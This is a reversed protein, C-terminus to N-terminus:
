KWIKFNTRQELWEKLFYRYILYFASIIILIIVIIFFLLLTILKTSFINNAKQFNVIGAGWAKGEGKPTCSEELSDEFANPVTSKDWFYLTEVLDALGKNNALVVASGGSILPASMSTGSIVRENEKWPGRISEGPATIDPKMEFSLPVPGRSSWPTITDDEVNLITQQPNSAAVAIAPESNAPSLITNDEPGYNGAACSVVIIGQNRLKEVRKSLVDNPNGFAGASISVIDPNLKEAFDFADLMVDLSTTGGEGFIRYSIQKANPLKQQVIWAVEFNVFTGHGNSDLGSPYTNHTRMDIKSLDIGNYNRPTCGSDIVLVTLENNSKSLKDARLLQYMEEVTYGEPYVPSQIPPIHVNETGVVITKSTSDSELGRSITLKVIYNGSDDFVHNTNKGVASSGDGFSWKWTEIIGSSRDTFKINEGPVPNKPSYSFRATLDSSCSINIWNTVESLNATTTNTGYLSETEATATLIDGDYVGITTAYIGDDNTTTTKTNGTNEDTITVTAESVSNGDNDTVYGAVGLPETPADASVHFSSFLLIMIILVLIKTRQVM